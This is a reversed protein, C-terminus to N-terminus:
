QAMAFKNKMFQTMGQICAENNQCNKIVFNSIHDANEVTDMEALWKSGNENLKEVINDICLFLGCIYGVITYSNKNLLFVFSIAYNEQKITEQKLKKWEDNDQIGKLVLALLLILLIYLEVITGDSIQDNNTATTYPAKDNWADCIINM